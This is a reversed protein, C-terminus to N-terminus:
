LPPLLPPWVGTRTVPIGDLRGVSSVHSTSTVLIRIDFNPDRALERCLLRIHNEMGGLVPFIDKYVHVIRVPLALEEHRMNRDRRVVM